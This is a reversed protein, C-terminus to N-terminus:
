GSSALAALAVHVMTRVGVPLAREDAHFSPQHLDGQPGEGSWIGLRAYSGPVHDLYWGFDEGGTSQTTSTVAQPGLATTIAHHLMATSEPDNDVVPVARIHDLEFRVGTPKLLSGVIEEVLAPLQGNVVPDGTRLTGRLLGERPTGLPTEPADMLGWALVTGSRPDIRRALMAPLGTAVVGLAHVVDSDLENRRGTGCAGVRLELMDCASTVPGVRIGVQGVPVKPDCHLGFIREVGEVGGAAIVDHSGGPEEEAPQFLLRVRGPLAPASVLAAAAGLLIATHLDHGCAHSVGPVTSAWAEGTAEPVALADIDARLAVCRPGAGIECIVGTEIPLVRPQLGLSRLIEVITATTRFERRMLEPNAHLTRRWSMVRTLNAALWEDLWQPGRGAGIDAVAEPEGTTPGFPVVVTGGTSPPLLNSAVSTM